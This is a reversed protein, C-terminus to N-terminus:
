VTLLTLPVRCILRSTCKDDSVLVMHDKHACLLACLRLVLRAVAFLIDIDSLFFLLKLEDDMGKIWAKNQVIEMQNILMNKFFLRLGKKRM